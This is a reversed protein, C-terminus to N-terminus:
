LLVVRRGLEESSAVVARVFEKPMLAAAAVSETGCKVGILFSQHVLHFLCLSVDEDDDNAVLLAVAGDGCDPGACRRREAGFVGAEVAGWDVGEDPTEGTVM